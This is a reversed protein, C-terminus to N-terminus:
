YSSSLGHDDALTWADSKTIPGDAETRLMGCLARAGASVASMDPDPALAQDEAGVSVLDEPREAAEPVALM